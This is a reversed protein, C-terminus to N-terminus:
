FTVTHNAYNIPENGPKPLQVTERVREGRKEQEREREMEGCPRSAQLLTHIWLLATMAEQTGAEGTAPPGM